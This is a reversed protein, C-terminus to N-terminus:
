STLLLVNKAIGAVILGKAVALGYIYGSCGLNFDFAGITTKLGLKNQLICATSPLFYDPSQTCLILFDIDKRNVHHESFLKEAALVAMDGATENKGAIHRETIGVKQAIKETSWEPFNRSIEENSLITRPLYYSVAKIYAKM